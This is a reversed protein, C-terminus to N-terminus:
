AQETQLKSIRHLLTLRWSTVASPTLKKELTVELQELSARQLFMVVAEEAMAATYVGCDDGNKQQPTTAVCWTAGPDRLLSKMRSALSQAPHDNAGAMSTFHSFVSRNREYTMLSWHSGGNAVNVEPNNNIPFLILQRQDLQLPQTIVEALAEDASQLLFAISPGMLLVDYNNKVVEQQLFEFCFSIIQDNLWRNGRLLDVDQQRLLVDHYSLARQTM